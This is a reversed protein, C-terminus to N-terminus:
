PCFTRSVEHCLRRYLVRRLVAGERVRRGVAVRRRLRSALQRQVLAFTREKPHDAVFQARRQVGHDAERLDQRLLEVAGQAIVLVPFVGRDHVVAAQLQQLQDVLDDFERPEFALGAVDLHRRLREVLGDLIDDLAQPGLDRAAVDDDM